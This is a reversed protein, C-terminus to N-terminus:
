PYHTRYAINLKQLVELTAQHLSVLTPIVDKDAFLEKSGFKVTLSRQDQAPDIVLGPKPIRYSGSQGPQLLLRNGVFERGDDAIVSPMM